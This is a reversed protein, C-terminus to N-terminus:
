KTSCANMVNFSKLQFSIVTKLPYTKLILGLPHSSAALPLVPTKLTM